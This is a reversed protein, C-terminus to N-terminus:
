LGEVIVFLVIVVVVVVGEYRRKVRVWRKGRRKKKVM